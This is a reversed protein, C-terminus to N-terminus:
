DFAGPTLDRAAGNLPQYVIHTRTQGAWTTWHRYLLSDIIRASSPKKEAAATRETCAPDVGCDPYVDSTFVVGSGDPVWKVSAAGGTVNTLQRTTGAAVDYLFIQASGTRNSAFAITKGDPSWAPGEDQKVGESIQRSAGGTSPMLYIASKRYNGPLDINSAAYAIWKGDPSPQPAGIRRISAMDDFTMPRQAAAAAAVLLLAALMAIRKM